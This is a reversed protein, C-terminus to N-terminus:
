QHRYGFYTVPLRVTVARGRDDTVALEVEVRQEGVEAATLRVLFELSGGERRVPTLSVGRPVGRFEATRVHAGALSALSVADEVVEGLQQRGFRVERPMAIIDEVFEGTIALRTEPLRNGNRDFPTLVVSDEVVTPQPPGRWELTVSLPGRTTRVQGLGTVVWNSAGESEVRSVHEALEVTLARKLPQNVPALGLRVQGPRVRIAPHVMATLEWADKRMVGDLGSYAVHIPISVPDAVGRWRQCASQMSLSVVAEIERSDKAPIVFAGSPRLQLCDCTSRLESIRIPQGSPNRVRFRHTYAATEYQVGLDLENAEVLLTPPVSTALGDGSLHGAVLRACLHAAIAAVLATGLYVRWRSTQPTM